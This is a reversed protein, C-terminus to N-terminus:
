GVGLWTCSQLISCGAMHLEALAVLFHLTPYSPGAALFQDIYAQANNAFDGFQAEWIALVRAQM